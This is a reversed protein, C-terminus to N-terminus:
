PLPPFDVSFPAIAHLVIHVPNIYSVSSDCTSIKDAFRQILDYPVAGEVDRLM